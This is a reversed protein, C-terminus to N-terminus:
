GNVPSPYAYDPWGRDLLTHIRFEEAVETIGALRFMGTHDMPSSPRVQGMHDGHFHTIVAYDLDTTRAPLHRALYRQDM